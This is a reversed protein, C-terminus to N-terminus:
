LGKKMAYLARLLCGVDALHGPLKFGSMHHEVRFQVYLEVKCESKGPFFKVFTIAGNQSM